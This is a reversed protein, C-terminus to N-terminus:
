LSVQVTTTGDTRSMATTGQHLFEPRNPYAVVEFDISPIAAMGHEHGFYRLGRREDKTLNGYTTNTDKRFDNIISVNKGYSGRSMRSNIVYYNTFLKQNNYPSFLFSKIDLQWDSIIVPVFITFRAKGNELFEKTTWSDFLYDQDYVQKSKGAPVCNKYKINVSFDGFGRAALEDWNDLTITKSFYLLSKRSNINRGGNNEFIQAITTAPVAGNYLESYSSDISGSSGWSYSPYNNIRRGNYWLADGFSAGQNGYGLYVKQTNPLTSFLGQNARPLELGLPELAMNIWAGPGYLGSPLPRRGQGDGNTGGFARDWEPDNSIGLYGFEKEVIQIIEQANKGQGISSRKILNFLASEPGMKLGGIVSGACVIKPVITQLVVNSWTQLGSSTVGIADRLVGLEENIKKATLDVYRESAVPNALSIQPTAAALGSRENYSLETTRFFPRIDIVDSEEIIPVNNINLEPLAKVVIYAIPLISQGILATSDAELSEVLLPTINMLDDPSPFSGKVGDFGTFLSQDDSVNPLIMPNGDADILSTRTVGNSNNIGTKFNVGIGAGKVIGLTPSNITRPSRSTNPIAITTSSMDIPKSYIFLLDIRQTAETILQKVGNTDYYFFDEQNFPPIEIQLEEPVDVIATRAYGRWKKIFESELEPLGLSDGPVNFSGSSMNSAILRGYLTKYPPFRNPPLGEYDLTDNSLYPSATDNSDDLMPLTFAREYLGNMGLFNDAMLVKFKELTSFVYGDLNTKANYMNYESWTIGAIQELVQLSHISYADNVRATYRGPRVRVINDQGFTYPQLESIVSRTVPSSSLNGLLSNLDLNELQDKLFNCNEQLQKLPINDVEYYYPDNAKFFRIPNYYKYNSESFTVM